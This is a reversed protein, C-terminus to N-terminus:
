NCSLCFILSYINRASNRLSQIASCARFCCVCTRTYLVLRLVRPKPIRLQYRPASHVYCAVDAGVCSISARVALPRCTLTPSAPLPQDQRSVLPIIHTRCCTLGPHEFCCASYACVMKSSTSSWEGPTWQVSIAPSSTAFCIKCTDLQLKCAIARFLPATSINQAIHLYSATIRGVNRGSRNVPKRAGGRPTNSKPGGPVPISKMCQITVATTSPQASIRRRRASPFVSRAFATAVSDFDVKKLYTAADTSHLHM